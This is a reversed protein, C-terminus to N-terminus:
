AARGGRRRCRSTTERWPASYACHLLPQSRLKSARTPWMALQKPDPATRGARPPTSSRRLAPARRSHEEHLRAVVVFHARTGAHRPACARRALFRDEFEPRRQDGFALCRAGPLSGCSGGTSWCCGRRRARCRGPLRTVCRRWRPAGCSRSVVEDALGPLQPQTSPRGGRAAREASPSPSSRRCTAGLRDWRMARTPARGCAAPRAAWCCRAHHRRGGGPRPPLRPRLLHRRCGARLTEFHRAATVRATSSSRATSPVRREDAQAPVFWATAPTRICRSRSASTSSVPAGAGRELERRQRGSRWIGCHHQCWLVEPQAACRVIRHPDQTNQNDAQEPPM